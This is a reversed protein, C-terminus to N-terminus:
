NLSFPGQQLREANIARMANLLVVERRYLTCLQHILRDLTPVELLEQKQGMSGQLLTCALYSLAFANQPLATNSFPIQGVDRLVTLYRELLQELRGTNRHILSEDGNEVPDNEVQGVLYAHESVDLSHIRFREQGVAVLNMRGQTLQEVRTIQATCGILHPQPAAGVEQGEEILVVGFPKQQDICERIMMKYREEFIHLRLPMGPFLVTNLPFLPLSYM